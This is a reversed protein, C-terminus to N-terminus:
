SVDGTESGSFAFSNTDEFLTLKEIKNKMEGGHSLGRKSRWKGKKPM